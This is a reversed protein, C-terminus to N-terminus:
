PTTSPPAPLSNEYKWYMKGTEDEVLTDVNPLQNVNVGLLRDMSKTRLEKSHVDPFYEVQLSKTFFKSLPMLLNSTTTRASNFTDAVTAAGNPSEVVASKRIKRSKLKSRALRQAQKRSSKHGSSEIDSKPLAPCQSEKALKALLTYVLTGDKSSKVSDRKLKKQKAKARRSKEKKQKTKERRSKEKKQLLEEVIPLHDSQRTVRRTVRRTVPSPEAATPTAPKRPTADHRFPKPPVPNSRVRQHPTAGAIPQRKVTGDNSRSMIAGEVPRWSPTHFTSQMSQTVKQMNQQATQARDEM